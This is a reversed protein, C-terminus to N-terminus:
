CGLKMITVEEVYIKPHTTMKGIDPYFQALDQRPEEGATSAAPSGGRRAVAARGKPAEPFFSNYDM